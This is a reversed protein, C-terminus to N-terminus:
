ARRLFPSAGSAGALFRSCFTLRVSRILRQKVCVSFFPPSTPPGIGSHSFLSVRSVLALSLAAVVNGRFAMGFGTNLGYGVAFFCILALVAPFAAGALGADLRVLPLNHM